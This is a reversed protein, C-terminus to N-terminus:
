QEPNFEIKARIGPKQELRSSSSKLTTRAPLKSAQGAHKAENTAQFCRTDMTPLEVMPMLQSEADADADADADLEVAVLRTSQNCRAQSAKYKNLPSVFILEM